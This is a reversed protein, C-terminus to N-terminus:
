GEGGGAGGTEALNDRLAGDKQRVAGYNKPNQWNTESRRGIKEETGAGGGGDRGGRGRTKSKQRESQRGAVEWVGMEM